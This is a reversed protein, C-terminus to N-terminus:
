SPLFCLVRGLVPGKEPGPGTHVAGLECGADPRAQLLVGGLQTQLILTRTGPSADHAVTPAM